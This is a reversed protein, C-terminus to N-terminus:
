ENVKYNNNRKSNNLNPYISFVLRLRTISCTSASGPLISILLCSGPIRNTLECTQERKLNTILVYNDMKMNIEVDNAVGNLLQSTM